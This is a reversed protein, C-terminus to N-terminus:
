VSENNLGLRLLIAETEYEPLQVPEAYFDLGHDNYFEKVDDAWMLGVAKLGDHDNAKDLEKVGTVYIGINMYNEHM